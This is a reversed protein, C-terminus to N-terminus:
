FFPTRKFKGVDNKMLKHFGQYGDHYAKCIFQDKKILIQKLVPNMLIIKEESTWIM